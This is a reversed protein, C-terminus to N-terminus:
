PRQVYLALLELLNQLKHIHDELEDMRQETKSADSLAWRSRSYGGTHQHQSECIEDLSTMAGQACIITADIVECVDKGLVQAAGNNYVRQIQRLGARFLLVNHELSQLQSPAEKFRQYVDRTARASIGMVHVLSVISAASGVAEM